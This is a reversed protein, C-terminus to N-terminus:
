YIPKGDIWQETHRGYDSEWMQQVIGEAYKQLNPPLAGIGKERDYVTCEALMPNRCAECVQRTDFAKGVLKGCLFCRKEGRSVSGDSKGVTYGM